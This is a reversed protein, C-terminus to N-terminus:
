SKVQRPQVIARADDAMGHVATLGGNDFRAGLRSLDLDVGRLEGIGLLQLLELVSLILQGARETAQQDNRLIIGIQFGVRIEQRQM